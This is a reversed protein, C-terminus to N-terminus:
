SCLKTMDTVNHRQGYKIALINRKQWNEWLVKFSLFASLSLSHSLSLPFPLEKLKKPTTEFSHLFLIFVSFYLVILFSLLMGNTNRSKRKENNLFFTMAIISIRISDRNSEKEITQQRM